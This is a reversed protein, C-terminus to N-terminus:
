KTALYAILNARDEPKAMGKYSMKTGPVYEKPNVLFHFLNEPTWDGGHGAMADSYSYGAASGVPRGVVGALFPGTANAGQELKHCSSCPKFLKEGAAADASAYLQDFPVEPAADQSEGGGGGGEAEIPYAMAVEEGHGEGHGGTDSAYLSGALWNFLLFVLLAGFLAGAFKTMEFTNM